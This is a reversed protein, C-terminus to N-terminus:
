HKLFSSSMTTLREMTKFFTQKMSLNLVGNVVFKQNVEIEIGLYNNPFQKRLYTTFGDAKGLYPFNFRVNLDSDQKLLETKFLKCFQKEKKKTSDYLLGIDCNRIKGQLKPTFSHMSLHLVAEGNEIHNRIKHEVQTRYPLYHHKIIESRDEKPLHKTFESFLQKHYLSRNLEILLRSTTSFYADDSLSKVYQFLNLAGLDYGRHTKLVTQNKFHKEYADPITNGGHECTLILKM